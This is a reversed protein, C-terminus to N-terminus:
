NGESRVIRGREEIENREKALKVLRNFRIQLDIWGIQELLDVIAQPPQLDRTLAESPIPKPLGAVDAKVPHHVQTGVFRNRGASNRDSKRVVIYYCLEGKHGSVQRSWGSWSTVGHVARVQAPSSLCEGATATTSFATVTLLGILLLVRGFSAVSERRLFRSASLDAHKEVFTRIKRSCLNRNVYSV